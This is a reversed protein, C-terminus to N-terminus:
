EDCNTGNGGVSIVEEFWDFAVQNALVYGGTSCHEGAGLINEFLHYHGLKGLKDALEKAQGPFFIDNQADGVFVPAKINQVVDKLTYQQIQTLWEFPSHTYFTWLGQQLSWRVATPTSPDNIVEMLIKDVATKNGAKFLAELEPGLSNMVVAGFDYVGDLAFVAALRHEFAAARPALYGGFSSGVLGIAKPDVDDRTLAYDVIPTVVKEWDPIFGKNQYRRVSPQGPGEYVIANYGRQLIAQGMIHYLEEQSGDYGTGVIITPRKGPKGCNFFIAPITFNPGKLNIREGPIDLLSNAKNWLDLTQNWLSYIRPDSWNGHLYFDTSRYYTAAKFAAERASVPFKKANIKQSINHARQALAFFGDYYSDFNGPKIQQAAILVEGIDSGGYPAISLPRLMEFHFDSDASLQYMPDTTSNARKNLTFSRIQTPSALGLAASAVLLNPWFM